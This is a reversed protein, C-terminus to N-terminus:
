PPTRKSAYYVLYVDIYGRDQIPDHKPLSMFVPEKLVYWEDTEDDYYEMGKFTFAIEEALLMAKFKEGDVTILVKM